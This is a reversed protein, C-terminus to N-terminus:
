REYYISKKKDTNMTSLKIKLQAKIKRCQHTGAKRMTEEVNRFYRRVFNIVM